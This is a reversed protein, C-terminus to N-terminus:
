PKLENVKDKLAKYDISTSNTENKWKSKDSDSLAIDDKAKNETIDTTGGTSGSTQSDTTATSNASANVTQSNIGMFTLGILVSAVGITFKRISFRQKQPEMKRLKEHINNRSLMVAEM